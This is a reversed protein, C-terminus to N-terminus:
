MKPTAPLVQRASRTGSARDLSSPVSIDPHVEAYGKALLERVFVPLTSPSDYAM